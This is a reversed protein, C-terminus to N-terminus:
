NGSASGKAGVIESASSMYRSFAASMASAIATAESHHEMNEEIWVDVADIFKERDNVVQRIKPFPASHLFAFAASKWIMDRTDAFVDNRQMWSVSLATIPRMEIGGIAAPGDTMGEERLIEDDKELEQNKKKMFNDERQDM